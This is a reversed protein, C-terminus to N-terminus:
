STLAREKSINHLSDESLKEPDFSSDGVTATDVDRQDAIEETVGNQSSKFKVEELTLM